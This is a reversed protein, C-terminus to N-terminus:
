YWGAAEVQEDPIATTSLWSSGTDDLVDDNEDITPNMLERYIATLLYSQHNKPDIRKRRVLFRELVNTAATNDIAGLVQRVSDTLMPQGGILVRTESSTMVEALAVVLTDLATLDDPASGYNCAAMINYGIKSKISAVNNARYQQNQGEDIWRDIMSTDVNQQYSCNSTNSNYSLTMSQTDQKQMDQKQMDQLDLDQSNQTDQKEPDQVNKDDQKQADQKEPDQIKSPSKAEKKQSSRVELGISKQALEVNPTYNIYYRNQGFRGDKHIRSVDILNLERLSKIMHQLPGLNHMGMDYAIINPDLDVGEQNGMLCSIYAYIAKAPAKIREDSMIAYPIMGYGGIDLGHRMIKNYLDAVEADLGKTNAYKKPHAVITYVNRRFGIGKGGVNEQEVTIYGQEILEHLGDYYSSKSIRLSSLITDRGPYVCDGRGALSCFFAYIAKAAISLSRDRMVVKPVVGFGKAKIGEIKIIDANTRGAKAM